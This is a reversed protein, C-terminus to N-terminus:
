GFADQFVQKDKSQLYTQANGYCQCYKPYKDFNEEAYNKSKNRFVESGHGSVKDRGGDSQKYHHGDGLQGLCIDISPQLRPM